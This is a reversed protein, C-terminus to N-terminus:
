GAIYNRLKDLMDVLLGRLINLTKKFIDYINLRYDINFNSEELIDKKIIKPKPKSKISSYSLEDKISLINMDLTNKLNNYENEINDLIQSTNDLNESKINFFQKIKSKIKDKALTVIAIWILIFLLYFIM